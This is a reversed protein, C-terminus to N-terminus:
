INKYDASHHPLGYSKCWKRVANSSVNHGAAVAEFNGNSQLLENKLTTESPVNRRNDARYCKICLQADRSKYSSCLPCLRSEGTSKLALDDDFTYVGDSSRILLEENCGHRHFKAHSSNSSFVMINNETNNKRNKDKHHVVEDENLYRGVISEAVLIHEYVCGCASANPHTPMYVYRYDSHM